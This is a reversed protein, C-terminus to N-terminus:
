KASNGSRSQPFFSNLTSELKAFESIDMTELVDLPVGTISALLAMTGVVQAEASAEMIPQGNEDIVTRIGGAEKTARQMALIDRVQPRRLMLSNIVEGDKGVLPFDLPIAKTEATM